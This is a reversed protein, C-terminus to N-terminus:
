DSVERGGDYICRFRSVDRYEHTIVDTCMAICAPYNVLLSKFRTNILSKEVEATNEINSLGGSASERYKEVPILLDVISALM